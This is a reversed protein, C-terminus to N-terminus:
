YWLWITCRRAWFGARNTGDVIVNWCSCHSCYVWFYSDNNFAKQEHSICPLNKEWRSMESLWPSFSMAKKQLCKTDSFIVSLEVLCVSFAVYSWTELLLARHKLLLHVSAASTRLGGPSSSPSLDWCVLYIFLSRFLCATLFWWAMYIWM